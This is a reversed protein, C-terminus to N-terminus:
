RSTVVCLALLTLLAARRPNSCVSTNRFPSPGAIVSGTTMPVGPTPSDVVGIAAHSSVGGIAPTMAGTRAANYHRRDVRRVHTAPSSM